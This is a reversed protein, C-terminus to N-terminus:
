LWEYFERLLIVNNGQVSHSKYQLHFSNATRYSSFWPIYKFNFVLNLHNSALSEVHLSTNSGLVTWTSNTTSFASPYSKRRTNWNEDTLMIWGTKWVWRWRCTARVLLFFPSSRPGELSCPEKPLRPVNFLFTNDSKEARVPLPCRKMRLLVMDFKLPFLPPTM